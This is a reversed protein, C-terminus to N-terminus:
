MRSISTLGGEGTLAKLEDILETFPMAGWRLLMAVDEVREDENPDPEPKTLDIQFQKIYEMRKLAEDARNQATEKAEAPTEREPTSKITDPQLREINSTETPTALQPEATAKPLPNRLLFDALDLGQERDQETAVQELYDSVYIDLKYKSRLDRAKSEWDATAQLDPFLVVERGDFYGAAAAKDILAFNGKGGTALWVYEPIYMSAVVATKESEAIAVIKNNGSLLHLGFLCQQLNYNPDYCPSERVAHAWTIPYQGNIKEKFRHEGAFLM